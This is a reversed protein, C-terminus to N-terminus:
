KMQKMYKVYVGSGPETEVYVADYPPKDNHDVYIENGGINAGTDKLTSQDPSVAQDSAQWISGLYKFRAPINVESLQSGNAQPPQKGEPVIVVVPREGPSQPTQVYVNVPPQQQTATPQAAQGTQTQGTSPQAPQQPQVPQQTQVAPARQNNRTAAMGVWWSAGLFVLLGAIIAVWPWPNSRDERHRHEQM